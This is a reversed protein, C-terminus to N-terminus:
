VGVPPADPALALRLAALEKVGATLWPVIKEDRISEVFTAHNAALEFLQPVALPLVVAMAWEGFRGLELKAAVAEFAGGAQKRLEALEVDRNESDLGDIVQGALKAALQTAHIARAIAPEGAHAEGTVEAVLEQWAATLQVAM